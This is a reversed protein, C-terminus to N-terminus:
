RAQQQSGRSILLDRIQTNHAALLERMQAAHADRDQAHSAILHDNIQAFAQQQDKQAQEMAPLRKTILYWVFFALVGTAGTETIIKIMGGDPMSQAILFLAPVSFSCLTM